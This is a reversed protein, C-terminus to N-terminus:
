DTPPRAVLLTVSVTRAESRRLSLRSHGVRIELPDGLPALSLVEVVEGELLGFEMLRQALADEGAIAEVRASQGPTVKDLTLTM